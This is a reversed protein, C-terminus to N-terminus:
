AGARGSARRDGAPAREGTVERPADFGGPAVDNVGPSPLDLNAEWEAPELPDDTPTLRSLTDLGLTGLWLGLSSDRRGM